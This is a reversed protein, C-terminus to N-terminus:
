DGHPQKVGNQQALRFADQTQDTEHESAKAQDKPVLVPLNSGVPTYWVYQGSAVADREAKAQAKARDSACGSLIMSAVAGFVAARLHPHNIKM